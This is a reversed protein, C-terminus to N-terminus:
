NSDSIMTILDRGRCCWGQMVTRCSRVGREIKQKL